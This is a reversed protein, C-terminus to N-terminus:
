NIQKENEQTISHMVFCQYVFIISNVYFDSPLLKERLTRKLLSEYYYGNLKPNSRICKKGKFLM